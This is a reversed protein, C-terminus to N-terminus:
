GRQQRHLPFRCSLVYMMDPSMLRGAGARGGGGGGESGAGGTEGAGASAGSQTRM